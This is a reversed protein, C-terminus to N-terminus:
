QQRQLALLEGRSEHSVSDQYARDSEQAAATSGGPRGKLLQRMSALQDQLMATTLAHKAAVEGAQRKCEAEAEEARQQHDAEVLTSLQVLQNSLRAIADEEYPSEDSTGPDTPM